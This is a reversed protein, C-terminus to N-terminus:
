SRTRPRSSVVFVGVLAAAFLLLSLAGEASPPQHTFPRFAMHAIAIGAMFVWTGYRGSLYALAGLGLAVAAHYLAVPHVVHDYLRAAPAGAPYTGAGRIWAPLSAPVGFLAGDLWLGVFVLALMAGLAANFPDRGTSRGVVLHWGTAAGAVVLLPMAGGLLFGAGFGVGALVVLALYGRARTRRPVASAPAVTMYWGLLVAFGLSAGLTTLSFARGGPLALTIWYPHM